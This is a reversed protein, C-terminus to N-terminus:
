YIVEVTNWKNGCRKCVRRRKRYGRDIRTDIANSEGNCSPCYIGSIYSGRSKSYRQLDEKLNEIDDLIVDYQTYAM